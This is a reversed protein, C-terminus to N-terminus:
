GNNVHEQKPLWAVGVQNVTQTDRERRLASTQKFFEDESIQRSYRKIQLEAHAIMYDRWVAAAGQLMPNDLHQLVFERAALEQQLAHRTRWDADEPLKDLRARCLRVGHHLWEKLQEPM